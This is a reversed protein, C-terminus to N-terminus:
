RPVNYLLQDMCVYMCVYMYICVCIYICVYMSCAAMSLSISSCQLVVTTIACLSLVILYAYMCLCVYHMRAHVCMFYAYTCACLVFYMCLHICLFTILQPDHVCVSCWWTHMCACTAHMCVCTAAHICVYVDHTHTLHSCYMTIIHMYIFAYMCVCTYACM